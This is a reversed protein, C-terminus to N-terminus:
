ALLRLQHPACLVYHLNQLTKLSDTVLICRSDTAYEANDIICYAAGAALAQQAFANGDFREGRLAIYLCDTTIARTDITVKYGCKQYIEYM